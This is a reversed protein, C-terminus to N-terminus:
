YLKGGDPVDRDPSILVVEGLEDPFGLLLCESMLPGIQKPQFNIVAAVKKGILNGLTYNKTIQASTKREGVEPGFDVWLIFAAKRAEPFPEVKLVTGVRIDVKNFDSYVITDGISMFITELFQKILVIM